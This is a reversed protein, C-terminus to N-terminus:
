PSFRCIPGSFNSPMNKGDKTQSLEELEVKRLKLWANIAKGMFKQAHENISLNLIKFEGILKGLEWGAMFASGLGIISQLGIKATNAALSTLSLNHNLLKVETGMNRFSTAIRSLGLVAIAKQVLGFGLALTGIITTIAGVKVVLMGLQGALKPNADVWKSIAGVVETTKVIFDELPKLFKTGMKESLSGFASGLKTLAGLVGQQMTGAMKKGAGESNILAKTQLNIKKTSGAIALAQSFQEKGFIKVADAVGLNADGLNAMTQTYDVTGDDNLAIETRLDKIAIKAEDTPKVLAALTSKFATAATETKIGQDKMAGMM